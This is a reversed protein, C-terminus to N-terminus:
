RKTRRMGLSAFQHAIGRVCPGQCLQIRISMHKLLQRSLPNNLVKELVVISGLKTPRTFFYLMNYQHQSLKICQGFGNLGNTRSMSALCGCIKSACPRMSSFPPVPVLPLSKVPRSTHCSVCAAQVRALPTRQNILTKSHDPGIQKPFLTTKRASQCMWKDTQMGEM